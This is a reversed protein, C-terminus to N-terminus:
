GLVRLILLDSQFFFIFLIIFLFSVSIGLDLIPAAYKMSHSVKYNTLDYIKVQHDLSASFMRTGAGDFCISTVTKQHNVLRTIEKGTMLDRLAVGNGCTSAIVTGSPFFELKEVPHDYEFSTVCEESRIDWLKITHDYSGTAVINPSSTSCRM